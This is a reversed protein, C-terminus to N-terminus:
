ISDASITASRAFSQLSIRSSDKLAIFHLDREHAEPEESGEQRDPLDRPARRVWQEGDWGRRHDRRQAIEQQETGIGLQRRAKPKRSPKKGIVRATSAPIRWTCACSTTTARAYPAPATATKTRTMSGDISKVSTPPSRVPSASQTIPTMTPSIRPEFAPMPAS